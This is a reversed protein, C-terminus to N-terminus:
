VSSESHNGSEVSGDLTDDDDCAGLTSSTLALRRAIYTWTPSRCSASNRDMNERSVTAPQTTTIGTSECLMNNEMTYFPTM